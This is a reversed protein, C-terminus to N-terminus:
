AHQESSLWAAPPSLHYNLLLGADAAKDRAVLAIAVAVAIM